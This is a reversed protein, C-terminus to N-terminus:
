IKSLDLVVFLTNPGLDFVRKVDDLVQQTQLLNAITSKVLVGCPKELERTQGIQHNCASSKPILVALHRRSIAL